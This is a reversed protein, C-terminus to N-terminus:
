GRTQRVSVYRGPAPEIEAYRGGGLATRAAVRRGGHRALWASWHAWWSGPHSEAQALWQEPDGGFGSNLWYNRRNRSVPNIVGAIHGSATLVFEMRDGLLRSSSYATKWPVIHDERAALMYAPLGIRGLDVPVGCMHLKGSTRLNNELYMNRVYYAYMAGPLNTGDGNWYLLDFPEPTNGKLYNNVVYHWILENARLSAFTLALERGHVVGGQAFDHERMQVYAEDIFVSLEGTDCFDLMTALLTLSAAPSRDRARLVALASALLTGGVCFGLVNIQGAGCIETVADIATIVGQEVYDDWTARGMEGPMNRWSVMFVTHGEDLAFRVYSNHPQLDLIYYKNICPPVMLLPREYVTDTTPRYQILQFFDNEFVVAGPTIALNRGVEFASDDTMSVLGKDLDRAFNKMGRAVSDGQTQAALKLAEPNSWPYNAPSLADIMQQAFFVLKKKAHPELRAHDVLQSVWRATLLYSQALTNFYPEQWEPANFRRDGLAADAAAKAPTGNAAAVGSWLELQARYFDNQIELWRGTDHAAGAVLSKFVEAVDLGSAQLLPRVAQEALKRNFEALAEFADNPTNMTPTAPTLRTDADQM